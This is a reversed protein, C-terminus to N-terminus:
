DAKKYRKYNKYRESIKKDVKKIENIVKDDTFELINETSYTIIGYKIFKEIIKLIEETNDFGMAEKIYELRISYTNFLMVLVKFEEYTFQNALFSNKYFEFLEKKNKLLYDDKKKRLFELAYERNFVPIWRCNNHEIYNNWLMSINNNPSIGNFTLMAGTNMYGLKFKEEQCEDCVSEIYKILDLDICFKENYSNELIIGQEIIEYNNKLNEMLFERIATISKQQWVYILIFVKKDSYNEEVAKIMNKITEGSGSYDDVIVINDKEKLKKREIKKTVKNYIIINRDELKGERLLNIIINYCSSSKKNKCLFYIDGLGKDLLKTVVNSFFVDTNYNSYWKVNKLIKLLKEKNAINRENDLFKIYNQMIVAKYDKQYKKDIIEDITKEIEKILEKQNM